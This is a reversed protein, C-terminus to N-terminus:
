KLLYEFTYQILLNLYGTLYLISVGVVLCIMGIIELTNRKKRTEPLFTTKHKSSTAIM